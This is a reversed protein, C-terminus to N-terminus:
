SSLWNRACRTYFHLGSELEAALLFENPTHSRATEGPGCKVAPVGRLLAMDSLTTSGVAEPNGTAALAAQVLPDDAPTDVAKLRESRVRVEASHLYRKLETLCAASDTPPVLRADFLAIASDPILNHREGSKLATAVLTSKGLLEHEEGPEMWAPLTALDKCAKLMANSNEVRGVHAAHCSQGHWLAELVVLGAQSRVVQLGTPEGTIGGDPMGLEALADAMGQNNTEETANLALQLTGSWDRRAALDAVACMMATACGKADNAGLGTLRDGQWDVEWPDSLWGQGAPVTDLHTNLLLTRGPGAGEVQAVLTDGLRKVPVGHAQLWDAAFTAVESEDGSVSPTRVLDLLLRKANM